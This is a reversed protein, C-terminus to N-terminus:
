IVAKEFVDMKLSSFYNTDDRSFHVELNIVNSVDVSKKIQEVVAFTTLNENIRSNSIYEEIVANAQNTSISGELIIKYKVNVFTPRSFIVTRDDNQTDKITVTTIGTEKIARDTKRFIANAIDIDAGGDVYYRRSRSPMVMGGVTVDTDKDNELVRCSKVGNVLNIEAYIGDTNWFSGANRTTEWRYRYEVDTEKDAGGETAKENSGSILGFIPTKITTITNAPVNGDKGFEECEIPIIATGTSDVTFNATNVYTNGKNDEFKVEGALASTNPTSNITKWFGKSKSMQKRPFQRNQLILDLDNGEAKLYNNKDLYSQQRQEIRQVEEMVPLMIKYMNSETTFKLDPYSAILKDAFLNEIEQWTRLKFM